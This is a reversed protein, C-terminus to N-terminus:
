NSAIARPAISFMHTRLLGRGIVEGCSTMPRSSAANQAHLTRLFTAHEEPHARDDEEILESETRHHRHQRKVGLGEIHRNRGDAGRDRHEATRAKQRRHRGPLHGIPDPPTRRQGQATHHPYEAIEPGAIAAGEGLKQQGAEDGAHTTADHQGDPHHHQGVDARRLPATAHHRDILAAKQKRNTHPRIRTAQEGLVITQRHGKQGIGRRSRQDAHDGPKRDGLRAIKGRMAVTGRNSRNGQRQLLLHRHHEALGAEHQDAQHSEGM